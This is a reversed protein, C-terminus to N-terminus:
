VNQISKINDTLTREETVNTYRLNDVDEVVTGTTILSKKYINLERIVQEDAEITQRIIILQEKNQINRRVIDDIRAQIMRLPAPESFWSAHKLRWSIATFISM